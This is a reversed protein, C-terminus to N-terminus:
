FERMRNLSSSHSRRFNLLRANFNWLFLLFCLSASELFSCNELSKIINACQPTRSWFQTWRESAVLRSSNKHWSPWCRASSSQRQARNRYSSPDSLLVDDSKWDDRTLLHLLYLVELYKKAMIAVHFLRAAPSLLICTLVIVLHITRM